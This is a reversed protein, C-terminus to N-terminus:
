FSKCFETIDFRIRMVEVYLCDELNMWGTNGLSNVVSVQSVLLTEVCVTPWWRM